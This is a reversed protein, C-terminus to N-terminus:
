ISKGNTKPGVTTSSGDTFWSKALYESCETPRWLEISAGKPLPLLMKRLALLCLARQKVNQNHLLESLYWNSQLGKREMVLGEFSETKLHIWDIVILIARIVM